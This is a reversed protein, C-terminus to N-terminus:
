PQGLCFFSTPSPSDWPRIQANGWRRSLSLTGEKAAKWKMCVVNNNHITSPLSLSHPVWICLTFFISKIPCVSITTLLCVSTLLWTIMYIVTCLCFALSNDALCSIPTLVLVDIYRYVCCSFWVICLFFYIHPPPTVFVSFVLLCRDFAFVFVVSVLCLCPCPFCALGSHFCSVLVLGIYYICM